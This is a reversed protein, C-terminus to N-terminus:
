TSYVLNFSYLGPHRVGTTEHSLIPSRCTRDVGPVRVLQNRHSLASGPWSYDHKRSIIGSNSPDLVSPLRVAFGVLELIPTGM